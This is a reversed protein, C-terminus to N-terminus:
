SRLRARGSSGTATHIPPASAALLVSATNRANDACFPGDPMPTANPQMCPAAFECGTVRTCQGDLDFGFPGPEEAAVDGSPDPADGISEIRNKDDSAGSLSLRRLAHYIPKADAGGGARARPRLAETPVKAQPCSTEVSSWTCYPAVCDEVQERAIGADIDHAGDYGGASCAVLLLCVVVVLKLM